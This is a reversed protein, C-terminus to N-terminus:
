GFYYHFPYRVYLAAALGIEGDVLHVPEYVFLFKIVLIFRILYLVMTVLFYSHLYFDFLPYGKASTHQNYELMPAHHAVCVHKPDREM